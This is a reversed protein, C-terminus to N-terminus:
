EINNSVYVARSLDLKTHQEYEGWINNLESSRIVNCEECIKGFTALTSYLLHDLAKVRDVVEGAEKKEEKEGDEGVAESGEEAEEEEKDEEQDKDTQKHLLMCQQLLPLFVSLRKIFSQSETEALLGLAQM